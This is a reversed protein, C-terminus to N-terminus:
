AYFIHNGIQATQTLSSAWSPYISKAHYHTAGGTIDVLEDDITAEAIKLAYRFMEDNDNVALIKNYNPDSTNWCSFQLPKKCVDEFTAGYWSRARVRNQIVAAVAEMGEIGEGRAEGWITRAVTDIEDQRKTFVYKRVMRYGWYSGITIMSLIFIKKNQKKM